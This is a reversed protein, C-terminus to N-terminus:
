LVKQNPAQIGQSNLVQNPVTAKSESTILGDFLQHYLDVQAHNDIFEMVCDLDDKTKGGMQVSSFGALKVGSKLNSRIINGKLVARCKSGQCLLGNQTSAEVFNQYLLPQTRIRRDTSKIIIGETHCKQIKNQIVLSSNDTLEIGADNIQMENQCIFGEVESGVVVSANQKCIMFINKIIVPKSKPGSVFLGCRQCSFVANDNFVFVQSPALHALIGGQQFLYFQSREVVANAQQIILGSSPLREPGGGRFSCGTIFASTGPTQYICSIRAWERLSQVIEITLFCGELILTGSLVQILCLDKASDYRRTTMMVQQQNPGAGLKKPASSRRTLKPEIMTFGGSDGERERMASLNNSPELPLNQKILPKTRGRFQGSNLNVPVEEDRMIFNLNKIKVVNGKGVDVIVAPDHSAVITVEGGREKPQLCIDKTTIRIQEQYLNSSIKIVKEKRLDSSEKEYLKLAMQGGGEVLFERYEVERRKVGKLAGDISDYIGDVPDDTIDKDVVFRAEWPPRVVKLANTQDLETKNLAREEAEVDGAKLTQLQFSKSSTTFSSATRSGVSQNDM